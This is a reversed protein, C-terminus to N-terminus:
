NQVPNTPITYYVKLMLNDKHFIVRNISKGNTPDTPFLGFYRYRFEDKSYYFQQTLLTMYGGYKEGDRRLSVPTGNDAMLTLFRSADNIYGRHSNIIAQDYEDVRPLLQLTDGDNNLQPIWDYRTNRYSNDSSDLMILSFATIPYYSEPTEYDTIALEASNIIMQDITDAFAYFNSFDVRTVVGTGTQSYRYTPPNTMTFNAPINYLDPANGANREVELNTYSLYNLYFNVTRYTTDAPLHFYVVLRSLALSGSLSNSHDFGVVKDNAADPIIALGKLYTNFKTQDTYETGGTKARNLLMKGFEDDLRITLLTTDMGTSGKDFESKFATGSINVTTTGLPTPDYDVDNKTSYFAGLAREVSDSSILETLQHVTFKQPTSGSSGYSYFDYRMELRVSDFKISPIDAEPVGVTTTYPRVEMFGNATVTGFAPDNYKGVMLRNLEGSYNSTRISDILYVSSELPIEVYKINFKDKPNRFGLFTVDDKCSLFFLAVAIIALQGTRKVWLNM